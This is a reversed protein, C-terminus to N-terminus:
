NCLRYWAALAAKRNRHIKNHIVIEGALTRSTVKLSATGDEKDTICGIAGSSVDKHFTKM